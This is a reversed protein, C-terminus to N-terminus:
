YLTAALRQKAGAGHWWIAMRRLVREIDVREIWLCQIGWVSEGNSEVCDFRDAM